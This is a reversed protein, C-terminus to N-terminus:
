PWARCWWQWRWEQDVGPFHSGTVGKRAQLALARPCLSEEGRGASPAPASTQAGALRAGFGTHEKGSASCCPSQLVRGRDRGGKGGREGSWVLTPPSPRWEGQLHAQERRCNMQSAVRTEAAARRAQTGGCFCLTCNESILATMLDALGRNITGKTGQSQVSSQNNWTLSPHWRTSPGETAM